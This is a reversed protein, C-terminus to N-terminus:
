PGAAQSRKAQRSVDLADALRLIAALKAVAPTASIERDYAEPSLADPSPLSFLYIRVCHDPQADPGFGLFDTAQILEYNYLKGPVCPFSSVWVM